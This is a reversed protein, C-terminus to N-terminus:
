KIEGIQTLYHRCYKRETNKNINKAITQGGKLVIGVELIQKVYEPNTASDNNLLIFASLGCAVAGIGYSTLEDGWDKLTRNYSEIFDSPNIANGINEYTRNLENQFAKQKAKFNPKNRIKIITNISIDNFNLPLQTEIISKAVYIKNDNSVNKARISLSLNDLNKNDTIPSAEKEFAVEQALFTMYLEGLNKSIRIGLPSDNMLNNEQCFLRWKGVFKEEFLTYNQNAPNSWELVPNALNLENAFSHPEKLVQTVYEIAKRTARDGEDYEPQYLNLLDTEGQLKQYLESLFLEGTDPVIPSFNDIYILAFKLWNLDKTEFNPYYILDKM